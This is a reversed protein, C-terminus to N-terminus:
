APYLSFHRSRTRAELRLPLGKLNQACNLHIAFCLRPLLFLVDSLDSHFVYGSSVFRDKIRQYVTCYM